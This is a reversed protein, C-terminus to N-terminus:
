IKELLARGVLSWLIEGFQPDIIWIAMHIPTIENLGSCLSIWMEFYSWFMSM